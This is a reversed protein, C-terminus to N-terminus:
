TNFYEGYFPCMFKVRDRNTSMWFLWSGTIHVSSLAWIGCDPCPFQDSIWLGPCRFHCAMMAFVVSDKYCLSHLHYVLVVFPSNVTPLFFELKLWSSIRIRFSFGFVALTVFLRRDTVNSAFFAIRSSWWAPQVDLRITSASPDHYIWTDM